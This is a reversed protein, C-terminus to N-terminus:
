QKETKKNEERTYRFLSIEYPNYIIDIMGSKIPYVSNDALNTIRNEGKYDYIQLFAVRRVDTNNFTALYLDNGIYYKECIVNSNNTEGDPCINWSAKTLIDYVPKLKNIIKTEAETPNDVIPIFGYYVAKAYDKAFNERDPEYYVPKHLAVCKIFCIDEDSIPGKIRYGGYDLLNEFYTNFNELKAVEGTVTERKDPFSTKNLAVYRDYIGRFGWLYSYKFIDFEINEPTDKEMNLEYQNAFTKLDKYFVYKGAKRKPSVSMGLAINRTMMGGFPYKSVSSDLSSAESYVGGAECMEARLFDYIWVQSDKELATTGDMPFCFALLINKNEGATVTGQLKINIDQSLIKFDLSLGLEKCEAKFGEKTISKTDARYLRDGKDLDYVAIGSLGIYNLRKNQSNLTFEGKETLGIGFQDKTFFVQKSKDSVRHPKFDVLKKGNFDMYKEANQDFVGIESGFAWVSCLLLLIVFLKKM